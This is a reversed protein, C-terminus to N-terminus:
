DCDYSKTTRHTLTPAHLPNDSFKTYVTNKTEPKDASEEIRHVAILDDDTFFLKSKSYNKAIPARAYGGTKCMEIFQDRSMQNIKNM